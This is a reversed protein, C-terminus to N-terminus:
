DEYESGSQEASEDGDEDEDGEAGGDADESEEESTEAHEVAKQKGKGSGVKKQRTVPKKAAAAAKKLQSAVKRAETIEKQEEPSKAAWVREEELRKERRDLVGALETSDYPEAYELVTYVLYQDQAANDLDRALRAKFARLKEGGAAKASRAEKIIAGYDVGEEGGGMLHCSSTIWPTKDTLYKMLIELTTNRAAGSGVRGFDGAPASGFGKVKYRGTIKWRFKGPTDPDPYKAVLGITDGSKYRKRITPLSSSQKRDM